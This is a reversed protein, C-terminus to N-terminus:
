RYTKKNNNNFLDGKRTPVVTLKTTMCCNLIQRETQRFIQKQQSDRLFKDIKMFNPNM